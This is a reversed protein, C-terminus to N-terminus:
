GPPPRPRAQHHAPGPRAFPPAQSVLVPQLLSALCCFRSREELLLKRLAEKEAEELLHCRETVDQLAVHLQPQLDGRGACVFVCVCVRKPGGM